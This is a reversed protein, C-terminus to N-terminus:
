AALAEDQTSTTEHVAVPQAAATRASGFDRVLFGTMGLTLLFLAVDPVINWFASYAM